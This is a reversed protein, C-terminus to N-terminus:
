AEEGLFVDSYGEGRKSFCPNIRSYAKIHYALVMGGSDSSFGETAISDRAVSIM